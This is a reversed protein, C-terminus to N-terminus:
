ENLNLVLEDLVDPTQSTVLTTDSNPGVIAIEISSFARSAYLPYPGITFAATKSKCLGQMVSDIRWLRTRRREPQRGYRLTM